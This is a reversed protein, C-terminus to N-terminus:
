KTGRLNASIAECVENPTILYMSEFYVGDDHEKTILHLSTGYEDYDHALRTIDQYPSPNWEYDTFTDLVVTKHQLLISFWLLGTNVTCFVKSNKIYSIIEQASFFRSQLTVRDKHEAIFDRLEDTMYWSEEKPTMTVLIHTDKVLNRLVELLKKSPYSKKYSSGVPHIHVYSDSSFIDVSQISFTLVPFIAKEKNRTCVREVIRVNREWIMENKYPVQEYPLKTQTDHKSVIIRASLFKAVSYFVRTPLRYYLSNFSNVITVDRLLSLGWIYFIYAFYRWGKAEVLRTVKLDTERVIDCFFTHRSKVLFLVERNELEFRRALDLQFLFEGVGGYAIMVILHKKIM